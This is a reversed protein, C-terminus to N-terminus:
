FNWLYSHQSFHEDGNGSDQYVHEDGNGTTTRTPFHLPSYLNSSLTELGPYYGFDFNNTGVAPSPPAAAPPLSSIHPPPAAANNPYNELMDLFSWDAATTITTTNDMQGMLDHNCISSQSTEENEMKLVHTNQVHSPPTEQTATQPYVYENAFQAAVVQIEAPSLRQGGPIDPPNEPFNFKANPGRLCFQATDFARAAKEATDYSGLWIRERSNPLRVESVWKGWKRLRVGKYKIPENRQNQNQSQSQSPGEM